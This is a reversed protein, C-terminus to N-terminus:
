WLWVGALVALVGTLAFSLQASLTGSGLEEWVRFDMVLHRIGGVLHYALATLIGWLVFKGLPHTALAKAELFGQESSLSLGLLSLLILVGFFLIVGSVRHLISAIATAPFRITSLNLNVPRQKTM